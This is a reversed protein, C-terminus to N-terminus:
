EQTCGVRIQGGTNITLDKRVVIDKLVGAWAEATHEESVTIKLIDANVLDLIDEAVLNNEDVMIQIPEKGEEVLKRSLERLHQLYSTGKEVYVLKGSLDSLTQIDNVSKNLIVVEKM